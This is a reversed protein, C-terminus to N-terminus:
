KGKKKRRRYDRRRTEKLSVRELRIGGYRCWIEGREFRERAQAKRVVRKKKELRGTRVLRWWEKEKQKAERRKLECRIVLCMAGSAVACM